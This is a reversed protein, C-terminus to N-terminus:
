IDPQRQLTELFHPIFLPLADYITHTYLSATSHAKTDHLPAAREARPPDAEGLVSVQPLHQWGLLFGGKRSYILM